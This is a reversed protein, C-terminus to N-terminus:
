PIDIEFGGEARGLLKLPNENEEKKSNYYELIKTLEEETIIPQLVKFQM